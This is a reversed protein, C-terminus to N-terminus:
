KVKYERRGEDLVTNVATGRLSSTMPYFRERGAVMKYLEEEKEYHDEQNGESSSPGM